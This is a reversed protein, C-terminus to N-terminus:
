WRAKDDAYPNPTRNSRTVSNSIGLREQFLKFFLSAEGFAQQKMKALHAAYAPIADQFVYPIVEIDTDLVLDPPVVATDLEITYNQSPIPGLFLTTGYLSFAAPYNVVQVARMRRSFDEWEMWALQIRRSPGILAFAGLVDITSASIISAVASAGAGDGSLAVTPASTYGAGPATLTLSSVGGNAVQVSAAAGSGGGGSFAASAHTYAAGPATVSFGTVGGFPYSEVNPSAYFSQLTRVSVTMAAVKLRAANIYDNLESATWFSGSTDKLLRQTQTRFDALTTM